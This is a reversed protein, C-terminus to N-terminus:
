QDDERETDNYLSPRVVARRQANRLVEIVQKEAIERVAMEEKAYFLEVEGPPGSRNKVVDVTLTTSDAPRSLMAVVHSADEIEGSNKLDSLRPKGDRKEIDRNLHVILVPAAGLANAADRYTKAIRGLARDLREDGRDRRDLVVESLNDLFFVKVGHQRSMRRMSGVIDHITQGHRDDVYIPWGVFQHTADGARRWMEPNWHASDRMFTSPIRGRRMLARDAMADGYDELQFVGVPTGRAALNDIVSSVVATKGVGPRAAITFLNGPRFGGVLADLVSFGSPWVTTALMEPNRQILERRELREFMLEGLKRAPVARRSEIASLREAFRGVFEEGSLDIECNLVDKAIRMAERKAWLSELTEVYHRLGSVTGVARALEFPLGIPVDAKRAQLRQSVLAPDPPKHEGVLALIERAIEAHEPTGFLDPRFIDAIDDLTQPEVLLAGLISQEIQPDVPPTV